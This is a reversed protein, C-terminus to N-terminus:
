TPNRDIERNDASGDFLLWAFLSYRDKPGVLFHGNVGGAIRDLM